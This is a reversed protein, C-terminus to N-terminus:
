MGKVNTYYFCKFAVQRRYESTTMANAHMRAVHERLLQATISRAFTHIVKSFGSNM